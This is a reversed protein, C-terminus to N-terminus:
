IACYVNLFYSSFHFFGEFKSHSPKFVEEESEVDNEKDEDKDVIDEAYSVSKRKRFKEPKTQRLGAFVLTKHAFM